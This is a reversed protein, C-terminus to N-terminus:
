SIFCLINILRQSFFLYTFVFLLIYFLYSVFIYTFLFFLVFMIVMVTKMEKDSNHMMVQYSNSLPYIICIIIDPVKSIFITIYIYVCICKENLYRHCINLLVLAYSMLIGTGSKTCACMHPSCVSV